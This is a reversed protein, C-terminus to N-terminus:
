RLVVCDSAVPERCSPCVACRDLWTALENKHFMHTCPLFIVKDGLQPKELCILCICSHSNSLFREDVKTIHFRSILTRTSPKVAKVDNSENHASGSRFIRTYLSPQTSQPAHQENWLDTDTYGDFGGSNSTAIDDFEDEGGIQACSRSDRERESSQVRQEERRTNQLLSPLGSTSPTWLRSM